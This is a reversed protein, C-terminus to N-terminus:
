VQTLLPTSTLVFVVNAILSISSWHSLVQADWRYTKEVFQFEFSPIFVLVFLYTFVGGIILWIQARSNDSRKRFSTVFVEKVNNTDFLLRLLHKQPIDRIDKDKYEEEANGGTTDGFSRDFCQKDKM